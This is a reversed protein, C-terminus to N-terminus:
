LVTQERELLMHIEWATKTLIKKWATLVFHFLMIYSAFLHERISQELFLACITQYKIEDSLIIIFYCEMVFPKKSMM